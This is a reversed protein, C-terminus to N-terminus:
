SSNEALMMFAALQPSARARHAVITRCGGHYWRKDHAHQAHTHGNLTTQPNHTENRRASTDRRHPPTRRARTLTRASHGHANTRTLPVNCSAHPLARPQLSSLDTAGRALAGSPHTRATGSLAPQIFSGGRSTSSSICPGRTTANMRVYTVYTSSNPLTLLLRLRPLGGTRKFTGAGRAGSGTTSTTGRPRHAQAGRRRSNNYPGKTFTPRRRRTPM